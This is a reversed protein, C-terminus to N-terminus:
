SKLETSNSSVVAAWTITMWEARLFLHCVILAFPTPLIAVLDVNMLIVFQPAPRFRKAYRLGLDLRASPRCTPRLRLFCRPLYPPEGIERPTAPDFISLSKLVFVRV